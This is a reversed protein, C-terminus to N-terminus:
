SASTSGSRYITSSQYRWLRQKGARRHAIICAYRQTRNHYPLFQARPNYSFSLARAPDKALALDAM